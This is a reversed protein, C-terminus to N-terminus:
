CCIFPETTWSSLLSNSTNLFGTRLLNLVHSFGYTNPRFCIRESAYLKTANCSSLIDGVQVSWFKNKTIRTQLLELLHNTIAPVLKMVEILVRYPIQNEVLFMDVQLDRVSFSLDHAWNIDSDSFVYKIFSLIFCGHQLMM